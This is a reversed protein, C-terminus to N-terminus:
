VTKGLYCTCLSTNWSMEFGELNEELMIPESFSDAEAIRDEIDM